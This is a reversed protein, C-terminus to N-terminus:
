YCLVVMGSGGYGGGGTYFNYGLKDACFYAGGGGGGGGFVGSAGNGAIAYVGSSNKAGYSGGTGGSYTSYNCSSGIGAKGLKAIKSSSTDKLNLYYLGGISGGGGGGGGNAGPLWPTYVTYGTGNSSVVGNYYIGGGGGGGAATYLTPYSIDIIFGYTTPATGDKSQGPTGKNGLLGAAGPSGATGGEGGNAGSGIQGAGGGIAIITTIGSGNIQSSEGSLSNKGGNGIVINFINDTPLSTSGSTFQGGGGGGGGWSYGSTTNTAGTVGGGAGGGGGGGVVAYLMSSSVLDTFTVTYTYEANIICICASYGDNLKESSPSLIFYDKNLVAGVGDSRIITYTANVNSSISYGNTGPTLSSGYTTNGDAETFWENPNGSAIAQQALQNQVSFAFLNGKVFDNFSKLMIKDTNTSYYNIKKCKQIIFTNDYLVVGAINTYNFTITYITDGYAKIKKVQTNINNYLYYFVNSYHPLTPDNYFTLKLNQLELDNNLQTLIKKQFSIMEGKSKIKVM